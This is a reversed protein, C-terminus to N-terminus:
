AHYATVADLFVKMGGAKQIQQSLDGSM